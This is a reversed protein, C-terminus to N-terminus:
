RYVPALDGAETLFGDDILKSRVEDRTMPKEIAARIAALTEQTDDMNTEMEIHEFEDGNQVYGPSTNVPHM